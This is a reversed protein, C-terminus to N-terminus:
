DGERHHRVQHAFLEDFLEVLHLVMSWAGYKRIHRKAKQSEANVVSRVFSIPLHDIKCGRQGQM